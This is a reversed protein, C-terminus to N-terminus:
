AAARANARLLPHRELIATLIAPGRDQATPV